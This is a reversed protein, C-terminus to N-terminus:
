AQLHHALLAATFNKRLYFGRPNLRVSNGHEDIAQTRAQSDAAKPRLQLWHGHRAHLQDLQGLAIYEMLEEYDRKLVAESAADLQWLFGQGIRREGLPIQREGEVPLWLVQALKHRLLSSEWRDSLGVQLPAVCVYTTELPQGHRDIPITKLEVGLASFDPQPLNGGDAGLALEIYQGVLGKHRRLDAPLPRGLAAALEALGLGAIATTRSLLESITAPPQQNFM